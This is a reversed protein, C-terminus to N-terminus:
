ACGIAQGLAALYRRGAATVRDLRGIIWRRCDAAGCRCPFQLHLRDETAAYDITLLEGAQIDRLAILEFHEMDLRCNPECGHTLYGVFRTASIHLGPGVQLSHQTIEPGIEGAFRDLVAGGAVEVLTQVGLGIDASFCIALTERLNQGPGFELATDLYM